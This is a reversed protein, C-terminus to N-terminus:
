IKLDCFASTTKIDVWKQCDIIIFNFTISVSLKNQPSFFQTKQGILNKESFM